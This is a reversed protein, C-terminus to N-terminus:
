MLIGEEIEGNLFATTVDLQHITLGYQAALAAVMRVSSMRAVPAFTETYDVGHQQNYGKAVLRAKRRELDGTATYKNRLVIRCGIIKRGKSREIIDWTNNETM